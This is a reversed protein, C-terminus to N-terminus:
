FRAEIESRAKYEYTMKVGIYDILVKQDFSLKPVERKQGSHHQQTLSILYNESMKLKAGKQIIVGHM